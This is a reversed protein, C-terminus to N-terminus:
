GNTLFSEFEGSFFVSDSSGGTEPHINNMGNKFKVVTKGPKACSLKRRCKERDWNRNFLLFQLDFCKECISWLTMQFMMLGAAYDKVQTLTVLQLYEKMPHWLPPEELDFHQDCNIVSLFDNPNNFSNAPSDTRFRAFRLHLSKKDLNISFYLIKCM